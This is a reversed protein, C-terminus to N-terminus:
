NDHCLGGLIGYYTMLGNGFSVKVILVTIIVAINFEEEGLLLM